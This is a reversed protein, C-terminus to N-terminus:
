APPGQLRHLPNEKIMIKPHGSKLLWPWRHLQQCLVFLTKGLQSPIQAMMDSDQKNKTATTFFQDCFCLRGAYKREKERGASIGEFDQRLEHAKLVLFTSFLQWFQTDGPPMTRIGTRPDLCLHLFRGNKNRTTLFHTKLSMRKCNVCTCFHPSVM